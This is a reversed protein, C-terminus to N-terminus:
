SLKVKCHMYAVWFAQEYEEAYQLSFGAYRYITDATTREPIEVYPIYVFGTVNKNELKQNSDISWYCFVFFIIIGLFIISLYKGKM